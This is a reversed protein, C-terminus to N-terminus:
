QPEGETRVVSAGTFDWAAPGLDYKKTKTDQVAWGEDCLTRLMRFATPKSLGAHTALEALTAKDDALGQLIVLGRELSRNHYRLETTPTSM